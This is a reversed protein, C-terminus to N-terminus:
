ELVSGVYIHSKGTENESITVGRAEYYATLRDQISSVAERSELINSLDDYTGQDYIPLESEITEFEEDTMSEAGIFALIANLFDRM